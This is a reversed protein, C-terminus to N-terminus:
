KGGTGKVSTTTPDFRNFGARNRKETLASRASFTPSPKAPDPYLPNDSVSRANDGLSKYMALQCGLCYSSQNMAPNKGCMSCTDDSSQTDEESFSATLLQSVREVSLHTHEAISEPTSLDHVHIADDILGLDMDYQDFCVDCVDREDDSAIVRKCLRCHKLELDL